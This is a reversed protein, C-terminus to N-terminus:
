TEVMGLLLFTWFLYLTVVVRVIGFVHSHFMFSSLSVWNKERELLHEISHLFDKGRPPTVELLKKVRDECSKIEEKQFTFKLFSFFILSRMNTKGTYAHTLGHRCSHVNIIQLKTELM